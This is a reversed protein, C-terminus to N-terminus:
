EAHASAAKAKRSLNGVPLAFTVISTEPNILGAAALYWAMLAVIIGVWGGAKQADLNDMFKSGSLLLFTITLLFFLGTMVASSRLTALWLIFTFIAWALLYYALVTELEDADTYAAVVGTGPLLIAAYSLWFGGYSSFATAGFTNGNAFEWMGALLQVAGGYFLALGVVINPTAVGRSQTNILSLVFTTLAFAALGLPGPDAFKAM